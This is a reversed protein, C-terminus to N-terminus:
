NSFKFVSLLRLYPYYQSAWKIGIEQSITDTGGRTM